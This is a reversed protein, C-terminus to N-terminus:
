NIRKYLSFSGLTSTNILKLTDGDVSFEFMHNVNNNDYNLDNEYISFVTESYINGNEKFILSSDKKFEITLRQRDEPYIYSATFDGNVTYLWEWKGIISDPNYDPNDKECGAGLLLVCLPLLLLFITLLKLGGTTPSLTKSKM